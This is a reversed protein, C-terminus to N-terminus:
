VYSTNDQLNIICVRLLLMGEVAFWCVIVGVSRTPM